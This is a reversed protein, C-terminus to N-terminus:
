FVMLSECPVSGPMFLPAYRAVVVMWGLIFGVQHSDCHVCVPHTEKNKVDVDISM